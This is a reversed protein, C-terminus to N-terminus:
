PDSREIVYHLRSKEDFASWKTKTKTVEAERPIAFFNRENFYVRLHTEKPCLQVHSVKESRLPSQDTWTQDYITIGVNQTIFSRVDDITLLSM